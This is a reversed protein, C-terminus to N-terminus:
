KRLGPCLDSWSTKGHSSFEREDRSRWLPKAVTRLWFNPWSQLIIAPDSGGHGWERDYQVHEPGFDKFAYTENRGIWRNKKLISPETWLMWLRACANLLAAVAGFAYLNAHRKWKSQWHTISVFTYLIRHIFVSASYKLSPLAVTPFSCLSPLKFLFLVSQEVLTLRLDRISHFIRM